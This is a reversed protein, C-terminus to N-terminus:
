AVLLFHTARRAEDGPEAGPWTGAPFPGALDVSCEGGPRTAADLRFHPRMRGAALRCEECSALFTPHGAEKHRQLETVTTVTQRARLLMAAVHGARTEKRLERLRDMPEESIYASSGHQEM